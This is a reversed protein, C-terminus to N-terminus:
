KSLVQMIERYSMDKRLAVEGSFSELKQTMGKSKVFMAFVTPNKIIRERQLERSLASIKLPESISVTVAENPKVFAYVDNFVSIVALSLLASLLTIMIVIEFTNRVTKNKSGKAM